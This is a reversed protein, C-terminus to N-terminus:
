FAGYLPNKQYLTENKMLAREKDKKKAKKTKEKNAKAYIKEWERVIYVALEPVSYINFEHVDIVVQVQREDPPAKVLAIYARDGYNNIYFDLEASLHYHTWLFGIIHDKDREFHAM